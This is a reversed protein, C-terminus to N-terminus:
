KVLRSVPAMNTDDSDDRSWFMAILELFLSRKEQVSFYMKWRLIGTAINEQLKLLNVTEKVINLMHELSYYLCNM